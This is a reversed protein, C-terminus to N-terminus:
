IFALRMALTQDSSPKQKCYGFSALRCDGGGVGEMSTPDLSWSVTTEEYHLSLALFGTMDLYKGFFM